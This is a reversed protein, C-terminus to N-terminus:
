SDHTNLVDGTVKQLVMRAVASQYCKNTRNGLEIM